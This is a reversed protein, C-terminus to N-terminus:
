EDKRTLLAAGVTLSLVLVLGYIWNTGPTAIALALAVLAILLLLIGALTMERTTDM